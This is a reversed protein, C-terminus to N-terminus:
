APSAQPVHGPAIGARYGQIANSIVHEVHDADLGLYPCDMDPLLEAEIGILEKPRSPRRVLAPRVADPHIRGVVQSWSAASVAGHDGPM